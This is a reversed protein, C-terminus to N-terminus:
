SAKKDAQKRLDDHRIDKPQGAEPHQRNGKAPPNNAAVNTMAINEEGKGSGWGETGTTPASPNVRDGLGSPVGGPNIVDAGGGTTDVERQGDTQDADRKPGSATNPFISNGADNEM